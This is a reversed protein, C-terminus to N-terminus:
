ALRLARSFDGGGKWKRGGFDECCEGVVHKFGCLCYVYGGVRRRRGGAGHGDWGGAGFVGGCSGSAEVRVGAAKVFGRVDALESVHARISQISM